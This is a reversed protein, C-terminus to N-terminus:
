VGLTRQEAEVRQMEPLRPQMQAEAIRRCAIEFYGADIECGIFRRGTQACAVGTTGSGCFPDLVLAGNTTFREVVPLIANLPKQMPHVANLERTWSLVDSEAILPLAPSGKALIYAQEHKGRTWYGLGIQNKTWVM